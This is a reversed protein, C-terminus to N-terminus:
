SDATQLQLGWVLLVLYPLDEIMYPWDKLGGSDQKNWHHSLYISAMFLAYAIFEMCLQSAALSCFTIMWLGTRM